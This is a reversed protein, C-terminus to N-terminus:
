PRGPRARPSVRSSDGRPPMRDRSMPTTFVRGGLADDVRRLAAADAIPDYTLYYIDNLRRTAEAEGVADMFAVVDDLHRQYAAVPDASTLVARASAFMLSDNVGLTVVREASAMLLRSDLMTITGSDRVPRGDLQVMLNRYGPAAALAYRLRTGVAVITDARPTGRVGSDAVVILHVRVTDSAGAGSTLSPAVNRDDGPSVSSAPMSLRLSSAQALRARTFASAAVALLVPLVALRGLRAASKMTPM